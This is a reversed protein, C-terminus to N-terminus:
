CGEHATDIEYSGLKVPRNCGSVLVKKEGLKPM